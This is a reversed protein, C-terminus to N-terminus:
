FAKGLRSVNGSDPAERMVMLFARMSSNPPLSGCTSFSGGVVVVGDTGRPQKESVIPQLQQRLLINLRKNVPNEGKTTLPASLWSRAQTETGHPEREAPQAPGQVQRYAANLDGTVEGLM